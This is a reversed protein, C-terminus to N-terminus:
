RRGLTVKLRIEKGDRRLGIEVEDEPAFPEMAADLDQRTEIPTTGFLILIDGVMVGAMEAPGEESLNEILLGGDSQEELGGVGLLPRNLDRFDKATPLLVTSDPHDALWDGLAIPAPEDLFPIEEGRREGGVAMLTSEGPYWVTNSDRDYLVFVHDM